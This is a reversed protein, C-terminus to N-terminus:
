AENRHRLAAQAAALRAVPLRFPSCSVYDLGIAECFDVSAPDGGHEGCLGLSIDGSKERARDIAIRMIEGVGEVDLSHFPDHGYVGQAVYDPMFRGADDRSLGYLMQTLDNTGFSLFGASAAIEAARLCARPTEIMVGVTYSVEDGQEAAVEVAVGGIIETLVELERVASILPIMIEPMVPAGTVKAAARAAEFIARTQMEYIEPYAIGIRCGRKGLMPNFETLEAARAAVKSVPVGMQAAMERLENEGHPLFEHLPPDLLRITIPSGPMSEFLRTFDERQMPLLRALAARREAESEALIMERMAGIRGGQFFMHETRCLGIGEAGFDRAVKADEATDANTRVGLRRVDDSWRLMAAFAGSTEPQIMNVEGALVQGTTGDVTVTDGASLRRGGTTTLTGDERDLALDKAGVVCPKGLGRAVVAAHSTMGGRVTLVGMAAHMGRIDEPSTEILALIAPEGRAAALEAENPSFVLRGAAGGPSAPLGQGVIDRPAEPDIAPHLQEELHAPDVRLIAEERSIAGADALSVAIHIAARASRKAPHVELINLEGSSITFELRVADGIRQEIVAGARVLEALQEPAEDELAPVRLGLQEREGRTIVHPTRLGMLVEDGQAQPLYRGSLHWQGSAEDRMDAYGAGSGPQGIGLAMVQVIVALDVDPNAGLATRRTRARPSQWSKRMADVALRLQEHADEPFAAGTESEIVERCTNILGRLQDAGLETEDDCGALRLADHMAYEFEDVDVGLVGSGFSQIVRRYLDLASREGLSAAVAPIAAESMGVNLIAPAMGGAQLEASPRVALLLPDEVGGLTRGVAQELREIQSALAGNSMPPLVFAPPVTLGTARAEGLLFAKQGHCAVCPATGGLGIWGIDCSCTMPADYGAFQADCM